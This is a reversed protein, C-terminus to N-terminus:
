HPSSLKVASDVALSVPCGYPLRQCVLPAQTRWSPSGAGSYDVGLLVWGTDAEPKGAGEPDAGGWHTLADRSPATPAPGSVRPRCM